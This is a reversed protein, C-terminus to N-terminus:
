MCGHYCFQGCRFFYTNDPIKVQGRRGAALVNWTQRPNPITLRGGTRRRISTTGIRADRGRSAAGSKRYMARARSDVGHLEFNLERRELSCYPVQHCWACRMTARENYGNWPRTLMALAALEQQQNCDAAEEGAALSKALMPEQAELLAQGQPKLGRARKQILTALRAITL